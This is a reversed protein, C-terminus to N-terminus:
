YQLPSHSPAVDAQELQVELSRSLVKSSTSLLRLYSGSDTVLFTISRQSKPAALSVNHTATSSKEPCM